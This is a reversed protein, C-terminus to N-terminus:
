AAHLESRRGIAAVHILSCWVVSDREPDAIVLTNKMVIANEPHKVPYVQGSSLQVEIAEFPRKNLFERVSDANM